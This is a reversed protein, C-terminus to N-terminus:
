ERASQFATADPVNVLRASQFVTAHTYTSVPICDGLRPIGSRNSVPICDCTFLEKQRAVVESDARQLNEYTGAVQSHQRSLNKPLLTNMQGECLM